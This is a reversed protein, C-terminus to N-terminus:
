EATVTYGQAEVAAVIAAPDVDGSKDYMTKGELWMKVAVVGDVDFIAQSVKDVTAKDAMGAVHIVTHGSGDAEKGVARITASTMADVDAM